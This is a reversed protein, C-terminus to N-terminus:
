SRRPRQGPQVMTLVAGFPYALKLVEVFANIAEEDYAEAEIRERDAALEPSYAFLADVCLDVSGLAVTKIVEVLAGINGLDDVQMTSAQTLSDVLQAFPQGLSERWQRSAKMPLAQITYPQGGLEVTITKSM